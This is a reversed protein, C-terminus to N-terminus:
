VIRVSSVCHLNCVNEWTVLPKDGRGGLKAGLPEDDGCAGSSAGRCRWSLVHGVGGSAGHCRARWAVYRWCVCYRYSARLVAPRYRICAM